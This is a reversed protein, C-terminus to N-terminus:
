QTITYIGSGFKFEVHDEKVNVTQAEMARGNVQYTGKPLVLTCQSNVPIEVQYNGKSQERNFYIKGYPSRFNIECDKLADLMKPEIRFHKFATSGADQQIGGLGTHFWEMLHGLM